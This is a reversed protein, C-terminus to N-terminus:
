DKETVKKIIRAPVGAAVSYAPVDRNVVAGAAIVAGKGIRVGSLITANRGIWVDDEIIVPGKVVLPREIPPIKLSEGDTDGHSNDSIFVSQGVLVRNGISIRDVCSIQVFDTLMVDDGITLSPTFTQGAYSDWAQLTLDKGATFRCGIDMHEMGRIQLGAGVTAGEGISHLQREYAKWVLKEHLAKMRALVLPNYIPSALMLLLKKVLKKM